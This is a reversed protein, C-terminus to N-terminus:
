AIAAAMREAAEPAHTFFLDPEILELEMLVPGDATRVLDVRAYIWPMAAARLARAGFEVLDPEAAVRELRGGFEHQVRFEGSAARKLVAHTFTGAVYVLSHEGRTQVEPVFAQLLAGSDRRIALDSADVSTHPTVLRTGRASASVRPKLVAREWRAAGLRGPLDLEDFGPDIWHTEPVAIGGAALRRLYRKDLNWLLTPVPNFVAVGAEALRDIWRRFSPVRTHYDWTSRMCVAGGDPEIADWPRAEVDVGRGALAGALVRDSPTLEPLKACTALTIRQLFPV